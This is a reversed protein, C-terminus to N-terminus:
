YGFNPQGQMLSGILAIGFILYVILMIVAVIISVITLIGAILFFTKLKATFTGLLEPNETEAFQKAITSTQSLLVGLWIPIWAVIIGVISLAQLIGSVIMMIGLFKMWGVMGRLNSKISTLLIPTLEM